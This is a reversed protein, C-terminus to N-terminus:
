GVQEQQVEQESSRARMEVSRMCSWMHAWLRVCLYVCVCVCVLRELDGYPVAPTNLVLWIIGYETPKKGRGLYQNM